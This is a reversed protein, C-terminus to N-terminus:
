ESVASNTERDGTWYQATGIFGQRGWVAKARWELAFVMVGASVDATRCEPLTDIDDYYRSYGGGSGAAAAPLVRFFSQAPSFCFRQLLM